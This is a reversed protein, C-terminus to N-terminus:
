LIDIQPIGDENLYPNSSAVWDTKGYEDTHYSGDPNILQFNDGKKLQMFDINIWKDNKLIKTQVCDM